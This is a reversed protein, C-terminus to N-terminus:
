IYIVFLFFFLFLFLFLFLFIFYFLIFAYSNFTYMTSMRNGAAKKFLSHNSDRSLESREEDHKAAVFDDLKYLKFAVMRTDKHSTQAVNKITQFMKEFQKEYTKTFIRNYMDTLKVFSGEDLEQLVDVLSKYERLNAHM